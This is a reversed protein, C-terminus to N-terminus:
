PGIPVVDHFHTYDIYRKGESNHHLVDVFRHDWKIQDAQYSYRTHITQAFTEDLGTLTIIIEAEAQELLEPTLGFLPSDPTIPHMLTSMIYFIPTQSRVLKLDYIRRMFEGEPTIENRILVVQSQAEVIRNKRQNAARIMLTPVRYHPRIVAVESFLVRATPHAFRAFMLGTILAFGLLGLLAEVTALLNAYFSVPSMGGYGITSMTQISFFFADWFDGPDANAIGNGEVLYALAFLVNFLLYSLTAWALFLSWPITLLYHYPDQLIMFLLQAIGDRPTNPLRGQILPTYGDKSAPRQITARSASPTPNPIM